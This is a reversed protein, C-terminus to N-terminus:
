RHSLLQEDVIQTLADTWALAADAWPVFHFARGGTGAFQRRNLIAIEEPTKVCDAVCGPTVM